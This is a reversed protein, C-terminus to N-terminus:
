DGLLDCSFNKYLSKGIFDESSKIDYIISDNQIAIDATNGM